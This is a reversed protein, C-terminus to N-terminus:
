RPRGTCIEYIEKMALTDALADHANELSVGLREAVTSLKFNVMESRCSRLKEAALTMVEIPPFWCWSGFYEDGCKKFWSRLHDMDFSANFAVLHFKDKKNFPDVHQKLLRTFEKHVSCPDPYTRIREITEGNVELAQAEILDNPWPAMRLNFSSVETLSRDDEEECIVGAVQILSYKDVPQKGTTETDIFLYKHKM